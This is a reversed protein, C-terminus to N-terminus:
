DEIGMEYGFRGVSRILRRREEKATLGRVAIPQPVEDVGPWAIGGEM